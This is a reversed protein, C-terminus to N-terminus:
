FFYKFIDKTVVFIMFSFLLIMGMFQFVKAIKEPIPRKIIMEIVSFLMHGGDLSPIPLLNIVALSLSILGLFNIFEFAGYRLTRGALDGITLPGGLNDTSAKGRIMRAFFDFTLASYDWTKQLGNSLSNILGYKETTQFKSFDVPAWRIGLLGFKKDNVIKEGLNGSLELIQNNRKVTLNIKKNPNQNIFNTLIVRDAPKGDLGILDDGVQLGINQAASDKDVIAIQSPIWNSVLYLGLTKHLQLEDGKKFFDMPLELKKLQDNRVVEISAIKDISSLLAVDADRALNIKKGNIKQILDGDQFGAIQAVSNPIVQAVQPKLGTVGFLFLFSFALIAFILNIAPGAFTILFRQWPTKGAFTRSKDIIDKDDKEGYMQVFGGLPILALTYLTDDKKGKWKLLPKGFGLSFRIIKVGFFRAVWFHGLEHITVLIGITIFFGLISLM